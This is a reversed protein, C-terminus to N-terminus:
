AAGETAATDAGGDTTDASDSKDDATQASQAADTNDTQTTEDESPSHLAAADNIKKMFESLKQNSSCLQEFRTNVETYLGSIEADNSLENIYDTIDKGYEYSMTEENYTGPDIYYTGDAAKKVYIYSLNPVLVDVDAIQLEDYIFVVKTGEELGSRIYCKTNMYGTIVRSTATITDANALKDTQYLKAITDINASALAARYQRVLANIAEETQASDEQNEEVVINESAPEGDNKPATGKPKFGTAAGAALSVIVIVSLIAIMILKRKQENRRTRRKEM